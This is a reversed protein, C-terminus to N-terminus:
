GQLHGLPLPCAPRVDPHEAFSPIGIECELNATTANYFALSVWLEPDLTPARGRASRMANKRKHQM